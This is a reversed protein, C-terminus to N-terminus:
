SPITPVSAALDAWDGARDPLTALVSKKHADLGVLLESQVRGM